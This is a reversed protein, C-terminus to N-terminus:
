PNERLRKKESAPRALLGSKESARLGKWEGTHKKLISKILDSNLLKPM